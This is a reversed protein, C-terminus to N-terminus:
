VAQWLLGLGVGGQQFQRFGRAHRQNGGVVAVVEGGCVGFGVLYQETDLRLGGHVVGLAHAKTGVLQVVFGDFLHFFGKGMRGFGQGVGHANGLLAIHLQVKAVVVKRYVVQRFPGAKIGFKPPQCFFTKLFPEFLVGVPFSEVGLEVAVSQLVFQANDKFHAKGAVEEDHLFKDVPCFVMVHGHPRPATRGGTRQHGPGQADGVEIGNRVVQQKFAKQVALADRQGIDVHVKAFTATALDDLVHNFGVAPARNRLDGGKAGHLGLAHHAVHAAGKAHAKGLSVADGLKNRGVELHGDFLRQLCLRLQFVNVVGVGLNLM